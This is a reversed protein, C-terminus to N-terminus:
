DVDEEIYQREAVSNSQGTHGGTNVEMKELGQEVDNQTIREGLNWKFEFGNIEKGRLSSKVNELFEDYDEEGCFEPSIADDLQPNYMLFMLGQVIDELTM